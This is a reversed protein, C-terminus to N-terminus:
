RIRVAYTEEKSKAPNEAVEGQMTGENEEKERKERVVMGRREEGRREEGGGGGGRERWGEREGNRVRKGASM